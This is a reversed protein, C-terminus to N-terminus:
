PYSRWKEMLTHTRSNSHTEGDKIFLLVPPWGDSGLLDEESNLVEQIVGNNFVCNLSFLVSAETLVPSVVLLTSLGFYNPITRPLELFTDSFEPSLAKSLSTDM